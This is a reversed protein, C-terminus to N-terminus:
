LFSGQTRRKELFPLRSPPTKVTDRCIVSVIVRFEVRLISVQAQAVSPVPVQEGAAGVDGPGADVEEVGRVHPGSEDGDDGPPDVVVVTGEVEGGVGEGSAGRPTDRGLPHPARGAVLGSPFGRGVRGGRASQSDVLSDAVDTGAGLSRNKTQTLRRLYFPERTM